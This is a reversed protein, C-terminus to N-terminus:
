PSTGSQFMQTAETDTMQQLTPSARYRHIMDVWLKLGERTRPDTDPTSATRPSCM